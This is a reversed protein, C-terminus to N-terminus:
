CLNLLNKIFEISLKNGDKTDSKYSILNEIHCKFMLLNSVVKM